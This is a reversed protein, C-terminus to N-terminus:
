HTLYKLILINAYNLKIMETLATGTNSKTRLNHIIGQLLYGAHFHIAFKRMVKFAVECKWM